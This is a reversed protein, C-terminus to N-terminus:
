ETEKLEHHAFAGGGGGVFLAVIELVAGAKAGTVLRDIIPSPEM